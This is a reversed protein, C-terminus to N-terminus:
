ATAPQASAIAEAQKKLEEMRKAVDVKENLVITMFRVVREDLRLNRELETVLSGNAAYDLHIYIGEKEKEIPFALARKGWSRSFLIEGKHQRVLGTLRDTMEQVEKEPTQAKVVFLTEYERM